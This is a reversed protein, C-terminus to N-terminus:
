KRDRIETDARGLPGFFDRPMSDMELISPPFSRKRAPIDWLATMWSLAFQRVFSAGIVNCQFRPIVEVFYFISKM